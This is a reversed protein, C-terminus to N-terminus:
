KKRWAIQIKVRTGTARRRVNTRTDFMQRKVRKWGFARENGDGHARRQLRAGDMLGGGAGRAFMTKKWVGDSSQPHDSATCVITVGDGRARWSGIDLCLM